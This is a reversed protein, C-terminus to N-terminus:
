TFIAWIAYDIKELELKAEKENKVQLNASIIIGASSPAGRCYDDLDFADFMGVFADDAETEIM